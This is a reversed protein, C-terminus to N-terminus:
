QWRVCRQQSGSVRKLVADFFVGLVHRCIQHSEGAHQMVVSILGRCEDAAYEELALEAEILAEIGIVARETEFGKRREGAFDEEDSRLAVAEGHAVASISMKDGARGLRPQVLLTALGNECEDMKKIQVRRILKRRAKM